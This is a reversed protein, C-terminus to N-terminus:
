TLLPLTILLSRDTAHGETTGTVTLLTWFKRGKFDGDVVIFECDLAESDGAKSRTLLGGEGAGGPKVKLHLTAITDAPIV